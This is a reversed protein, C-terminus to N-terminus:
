GEPYIEDWMVTEGTEASVRAAELIQMVLQNNELSSPAYTPIERKGRVVEALYSFPDGMGGAPNDLRHAEPGAEEDVMLHYQNRDDAIFYGHTGYIAMEKLHHSWNWSAQITVQTKPYTILITAEDEVKPYREPKIQQTVCSVSVPEQGNLYWTALNAGYCGFDNLAGAGNLEPDTLWEVFEPWCGIEIPGPHGTRFVLRRLPGITEEKTVREHALQNTAYWTTEYNTLLHIDHQRALGIMEAAHEWNIALPKEVMVHVGRPACVRVTELHDYITNFAAVAEVTEAELMAELSPYILDRGFGFEEQLRDILDDNTEVIGVVEVDGVDERGLIWGAHGHVLGVVGMKLPPHVVPDGLMEETAMPEEPKMEETTTDCAVIGTILLLCTFINRLRM